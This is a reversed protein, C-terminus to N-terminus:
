ALDRRLVLASSAPRSGRQYYSQRQGVQRFGRRRYLRLAAENTEDVELFLARVGLGALRRLHLDLLKGALGRGRGGADVAISLIEAEGAVLRSM